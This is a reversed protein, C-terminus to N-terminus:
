GALTAGTALAEGAALFVVAEGFGRAIGRVPRALGRVAVAVGRCRACTRGAVGPVFGRTRGESIIKVTIANRM